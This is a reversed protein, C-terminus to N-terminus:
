APAAIGADAMLNATLHREAAAYDEPEDIDLAIEPYPSVVAGLGVHFHEGAIQLTEQLTTLQQTVMSWAFRLFLSPGLEWAFRLNNKRAEYLRDLREKVEEAAPFEKRALFLNGHAYRGDAFDAFKHDGEEYRGLVESRVWSTVLDADQRRAHEVFHDIMEPRLLPQDPHCFLVRPTGAAQLGCYANDLLTECEPVTEVREWRQVYSHVVPAGVVLIRNVTRARCLADLVYDVLPKGLMPVLAKYGPAEGPRLAVRNISGTLVVADVPAREEMGRGDDM